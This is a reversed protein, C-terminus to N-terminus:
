PSTSSIPPSPNPSASSSPPSDTPSAKLDVTRGNEDMVKSYQNSVWGTIGNPLGPAPDQYQIKYWGTKEDKKILLYKKGSKIEAIEEGGIGPETRMRLFGTPTNGILVYTKPGQNPTVVSNSTDKNLDIKALKVFINLRLGSVTKLNVTKQTYGDANIVLEHADPNINNINYPTKGREVGDIAIGAREPISIVTLEAVSGGIKEFTIVAGASKDESDAFEYDVITQIGKTLNIKTEYPELSKNNDPVLKLIIQDQSLTGKYPTKAIYNGNIYIRSAPNTNVSLGAPKSQLIGLFLFILIGIVAMIIFFVFSIKHKSM